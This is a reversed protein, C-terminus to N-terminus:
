KVIALLNYKVAKIINTFTPSYKLLKMTLKFTTMSPKKNSALHLCDLIENNIKRYLSKKSTEDLPILPSLLHLEFFDLAALDAQLQNSMLSSPTDRYTALCKNILLLEKDVLLECWKSIDESFLMNENFLLASGTFSAKKISITNAHLFIWHNLFYLYVNKTSIYYGGQHSFLASMDKEDWYKKIIGDDLTTGNKDISCYDHAVIAINPNHEFATAVEQLKEPLMTDDSDLFCLIEGTAQKIGVNRVISPKGSNKQNILIIRSDTQKFEEIIALSEDISGDNIIILEFNKYSQAQVSLIMQEIYNQANYCPTIISFKM